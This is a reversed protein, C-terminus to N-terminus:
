SGCHVRASPLSPAPEPSVTDRDDGLAADEQWREIQVQVQQGPESIRNDGPQLCRNRVRNLLASAYIGTCYAASFGGLGLTILGILFDARRLSESGGEICSGAKAGAANTANGTKCWALPGHGFAGLMFVTCAAGMLVAALAAVTTRPQSALSAAAALYDTKSDHTQSLHTSTEHSFTSSSATSSVTGRM